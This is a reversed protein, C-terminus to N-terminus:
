GSAPSAGKKAWFAELVDEDLVIRRISRRDDLPVLDPFAKDDHQWFVKQPENKTGKFSAYTGYDMSILHYREGPKDQHSWEINLPHLLRGSFLRQLLPHSIASYPVMFTRAKRERIVNQVLHQMFEELWRESAISIYKDTRYWEISAHHVDDVAIAEHAIKQQRFRDYARGFIVLFDRANGECARCLESFVKRQTFLSLIKNLKDREDLGVGLEIALHNYLVEAFFGEVFDQDNEWVFYSDMRIDSFIDASKELGISVDNHRSNLRYAYDVVAIKVTVRPNSFFARKLFEAFYPQAAPPIHAWEDILISLRPVRVRDLVRNLVAVIEGYNFTEAVENPKCLAFFQVLLAQTANQDRADPAEMRAADDLMRDSITCMFKSFFRIGVNKDSGDAGLGSGFSTCDVYHCLDGGQVTKTLHMKLTHTKGVGRRGFLLQNQTNGLEDLVKNPVFSSVLREELLQREARREISRVAQHFGDRNIDFPAM